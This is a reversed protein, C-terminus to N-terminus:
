AWRLARGPWAKVPKEGQCRSNSSDKSYSSVGSWAAAMASTIASMDASVGM